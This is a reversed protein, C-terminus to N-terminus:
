VFKIKTKSIWKSALYKLSFRRLTPRHLFLIYYKQFLVNYYYIIIYSGKLNYYGLIGGVRTKGIMGGVKITFTPLFPHQLLTSFTPPLHWCNSSHTNSSPVLLQLFPHQLSTSFSIRLWKWCCLLFRFNSMYSSLPNLGNSHYVITNAMGVVITCHNFAIAYFIIM